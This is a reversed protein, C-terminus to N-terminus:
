KRLLFIIIIFLILSLLPILLQKEDKNNDTQFEEIDIVQIDTGLKAKHSEESNIIKKNIPLVYVNIDKFVKSIDTDIQNEIPFIDLLKQAIKKNVIYGFLGYVIGLPKSYNEHLIKQNHAYHYGM